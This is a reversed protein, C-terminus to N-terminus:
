TETSDASRTAASMRFPLHHKLADVYADLDRTESVLYDAIAARFGPHRILPEFGRTLKHEGQVGADLRKLGLGICHEITQYYCLEFHLFRVDETCGWHRGFLTDMGIMAFAGAIYRGEKHALILLTQDPLNSSLSQFFKLTFRPSGWRRHFTSCYFAYFTRWHHEQIERGTLRIIEVGAERVHRRERLIEKRRKSNLADLYDGFDRYGRNFWCYQLTKRPLLRHKLFSDADTEAPFLCHFSSLELQDTLEIIQRVLLERVRDPEGCAPDILLRPGCVPSFPIASVLKPYYAGGAREYADAWNWDFVFEGFSNDRLYLPAAAVLSSGRTITLHYPRWGHDGLCDHEELASLFAHSVFPNSDGALRNWEDPAVDSLAKLRSVDLSAASDTRANCTLPIPM